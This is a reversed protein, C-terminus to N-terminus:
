TSKQNSLCTTHLRDDLFHPAPGGQVISTAAIKSCSRLNGNQIDYTSDVSAGNPFMASGMQVVNSLFKKAMAGTDIGSEGMYKLHLLKQPSTAKCAQQWLSLSRQFAAGQQVVVFFQGTKDVQKKIQKVLKPLSPSSSQSLESSRDHEERKYRGPSPRM